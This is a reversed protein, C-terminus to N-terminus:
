FNFIYYEDCGRCLDDYEGSVHQQHVVEGADWIDKLSEEFVNGLTHELDTDERCRPVSGNIRIYMERKNQWCPFRVLPSLDTVKREPLRGAFHDYKQIIVHDTKEKWRRYFGELHEENTNMRVAQIWTSQPAAGILAHACSLAQEFGEGRISEYLVKDDADLSVVWQVGPGYKQALAAVSDAEAGIGSTEVFGSLGPRRHISDLLKDLEPHLLPEGWTSIGVTAEPAFDVIRGILEDFTQADMTNRRDLIAGGFQPFPCYGCSQPCGDIIQIGFFAPVSRLIERHDDLYETLAEHGDPANEAVRRCLIFNRRSDCRLEIRLMRMDRPSLLTEVDFANIDKQLISFLWGPTSGDIRSEEDVLEKLLTPLQPAFFEPSVGAPYGDCFTYHAAYSSHERQMREILDSQYFPEDARMYVLEDAKTAAAAEELARLSDLANNKATIVKESRTHRLKAEDSSGAGSEYGPGALIVVEAAVGGACELVREIASGGGPLEMHAYPSVNRMDVVAAVM